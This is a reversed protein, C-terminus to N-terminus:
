KKRLWIFNTRVVHKQFVRGGGQLKYMKHLNMKTYTKKININKLLKLNYTLNYITEIHPTKYIFLDIKVKNM